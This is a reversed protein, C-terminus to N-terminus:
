WRKGSSRCIYVEKGMEQSEIYSHIKLQRVYSVSQSEWLEMDSLYKLIVFVSVM